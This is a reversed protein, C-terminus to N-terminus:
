SELNRSYLSHDSAYDPYTWHHFDDALSKRAKTATGGGLETLIGKFLIDARNWNPTSALITTTRDFISMPINRSITLNKM